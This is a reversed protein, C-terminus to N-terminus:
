LSDFNNSLDITFKDITDPQLNWLLLQTIRVDQKCYAGMEETYVNWAEAKIKKRQKWEEDTYEKGTLPNTKEFGYLKGFTELSHNHM